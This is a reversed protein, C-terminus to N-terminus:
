SRVNAAQLDSDYGVDESMGFKYPLDHDYNRVDMNHMTDGGNGVLYRVLSRPKDSIGGNPCGARVASDLGSRKGTMVMIDTARTDVRTILFIPHPQPVLLLFPRRLPCCRIRM